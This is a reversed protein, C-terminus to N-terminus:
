PTMSWRVAAAAVTGFLLASLVVPLWSLATEVFSSGAPVDAASALPAM